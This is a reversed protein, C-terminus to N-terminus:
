NSQVSSSGDYNTKCQSIKRHKKKLLQHIQGMHFVTSLLVVIGFEKLFNMFRSYSGEEEKKKGIDVTNKSNKRMSKLKASIQEKTISDLDNSGSFKEDEFEPYQECFKSM